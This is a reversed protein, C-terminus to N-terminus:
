SFPNEICLWIDVRLFKKLHSDVKKLLKWLLDIDTLEDVDIENAYKSEVVSCFISSFQIDAANTTLNKLCIKTECCTKWVVFVQTKTSWIPWTQWDPMEEVGGSRAPAEVQVGPHMVKVDYIDFTTNVKTWVLENKKLTEVARVRVATVKWDSTLRKARTKVLM